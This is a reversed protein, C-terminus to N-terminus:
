LQMPNRNKPAMAFVLMGDKTRMTAARFLTDEKVARVAREMDFNSNVGFMHVSEPDLMDVLDLFEAWSDRITSAAQWKGEPIVSCDGLEHLMLLNVGRRYLVMARWLVNYASMEPFEVELAEAFHQEAGHRDGESVADQGLNYREAMKRGAMQMAAKLEPDM